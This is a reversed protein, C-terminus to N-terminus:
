VRAPGVLAADAGPHGGATPSLQVREHWDYAEVAIRRDAARMITDNGLPTIVRPRHTAALRSLTATDLHDYHCHSVLVTDIPPLAAFAVGPDNVRRPGAFPVPSVRESWVPDLLINHGGSQILFSAHGIFCVRLGSGDVRPPPRDVFPSPAAAPWPPRRSFVLWRALDALRQPSGTPMLSVTAM